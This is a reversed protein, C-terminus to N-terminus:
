NILANKHTFFDVICIICDLPMKDTVINNYDQIITSFEDSPEEKRM